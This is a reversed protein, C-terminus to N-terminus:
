PPVVTVARSQMLEQAFAVQVIDDLRQDGTENDFAAVLVLRPTAPAGGARWWLAAGVAILALVGAASWLFRRKRTMATLAAGMAAASEYRKEPVPDTAREIVSALRRPLDRRRQRVPVRVNTALADRLDALSRGCIPFTGTALHYLLVGLSYIDSVVSASEGRIVEPALYLPTGAIRGGAGPQAAEHSAGFDSLVIRGDTGRMVNQTKIDRHLLGAAHVATVAAALALGVAAVDDAPLPGRDRLEEELTRGEVFEMWIGARG